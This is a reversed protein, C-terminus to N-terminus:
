KPKDHYDTNKSKREKDNRSVHPKNYWGKVDHTDRKRSIDFRTVKKKRERPTDQNTILSNLLVIGLLSIM